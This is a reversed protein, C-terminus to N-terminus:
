TGGGSRHSRQAMPAPPPALSLCPVLSGSLLPLQPICQRGAGVEPQLWPLFRHSLELKLGFSASFLLSGMAPSHQQPGQSGESTLQAQCQGHYSVTCGTPVSNGLGQTLSPSSVTGTDEGETPIGGWFSANVQRTEHHRGAGKFCRGGSVQQQWPLPLGAKSDSASARGPAWGSYVARKPQDGRLKGPISSRQPLCDGLKPRPPAPSLSGPSEAQGTLAVLGRAQSPWKPSPGPERRSLAQKDDGAECRQEIRCSEGQEGLWLLCLLSFVPGVSAVM